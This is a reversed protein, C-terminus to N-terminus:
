VSCIKTCFSDFQKPKSLNLCPDIKELAESLILKHVMCCLKKTEPWTALHLSYLFSVRLGSYKSWDELWHRGRWNLANDTCLLVRLRIWRISLSHIHSCWSCSLDLFRALFDYEKYIKTQDKKKVTSELRKTFDNKKQLITYITQPRFNLGERNVVQWWAHTSIFLCRPM